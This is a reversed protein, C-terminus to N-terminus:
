ARNRAYMKGRKEYKYEPKWAQTTVGRILAIQRQAKEKTTARAIIKKGDRVRWLGNKLPYMKPM